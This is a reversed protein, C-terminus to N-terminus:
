LATECYSLFKLREIKFNSNALIEPWFKITVILENRNNDSLKKWPVLLPHLKREEDIITDLKWGAEKKQLFWREHEYEALTILEHETFTVAELKEKVSIIDYGIRHLADPIHKIQEYISEKHENCVTEWSELCNSKSENKDQNLLTHRYLDMALSEFKESYFADM